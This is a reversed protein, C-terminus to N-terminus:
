QLAERLLRRARHLQAKTTGTALGMQQAIEDHQYGEMDHLVFIVRAQPPLAAIAKELDVGPSLHVHPAIAEVASLDEVAAVRSTRRKTTRIDALVVNVALRHLWSSFAAEGRYSALMEWARVFADQTLEEARSANAVIRMCVAYVRGVNERYLHEFALRDGAQARLVTENMVGQIPSSPHDHVSNTNVRQPLM